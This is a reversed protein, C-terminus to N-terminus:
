PYQNCTANLGKWGENLYTDQYSRIASFTDYKRKKADKYMYIHISFAVIYFLMHMYTDQNTYLMTCQLGCDSNGFFFIYTPTWTFIESKLSYRGPPYSYTIWSIM